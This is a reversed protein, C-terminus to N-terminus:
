NIEEYNNLIDLSEAYKCKERELGYTNNKLSVKAVSTIYSFGIFLCIAWM